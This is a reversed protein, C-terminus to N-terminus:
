NQKTTRRRFAGLDCTTLNPPSIFSIFDSTFPYLFSYINHITIENVITCHHRQELCFSKLHFLSVHFSNLFKHLVRLTLSLFVSLSIENFMLMICDVLMEDVRKWDYKWSIRACFSKQNQYQRPSLFPQHRRCAAAM